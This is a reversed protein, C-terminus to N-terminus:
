HFTPHTWMYAVYVFGAMQMTTATLLSLRASRNPAFLGSLLFFLGFLPAALIRLPAFMSWARLLSTSQFLKPALYTLAAALGTSAVVLSAVSLTLWFLHRTRLFFLGAGTAPVAALAFAGLFVLSEGFAFMGGQKDPSTSTAVYWDTVAWAIAVAAFYGVVILGAKAVPRM